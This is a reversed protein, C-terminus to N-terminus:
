SNELSAIISVHINFQREHAFGSGHRRRRRSVAFKLHLHGLVRNYVSAPVWVAHDVDRRSEPEHDDMCPTQQDLHIKTANRLCWPIGSARNSVAQAENVPYAGGELQRWKSKGWVRLNSIAEIQLYLVRLVVTKEDRFHQEARSSGM